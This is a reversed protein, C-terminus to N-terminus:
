QNSEFSSTDKVFVSFRRLKEVENETFTTFRKMLFRDVLYVSNPVVLTGIPM